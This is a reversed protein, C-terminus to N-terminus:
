EEEEHKRTAQYQAIITNAIKAPVQEYHNFKMIYSGKGQTMSRLDNAYTFMEALPVHARVVQTKGKVEMGITRGRRQNLDGSIQGLFEEPIFVEVEMIPELLAPGAALAAKRLAMSGARQFAMDSSDVEHFSGDYLIVQIDVMPNGSVAGESMAYRVGKEVSPIFNKPIAGGFVKDVFEFGKGHELPHVEIWVDGYQGRGGSQRKFKGQVKATKTITEKYPVKPTGLDM